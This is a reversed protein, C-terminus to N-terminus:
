ASIERMGRFGKNPCLLIFLTLMAEIVGRHFFHVVTLLHFGDPVYGSRGLTLLFEPM